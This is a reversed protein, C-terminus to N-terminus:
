RFLRHFRSRHQPAYGREAQRDKGGNLPPPGSKVVVTKLSPYSEAVASLVGVVRRTFSAKRTPDLYLGRLRGIARRASDWKIPRSRLADRLARVECRVQQDAIVLVRGTTVVDPVLASLSRVLGWRNRQQEPQM